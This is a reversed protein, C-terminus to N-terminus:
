LTIITVKKTLYEQRRVKNSLYEQWMGPRLWTAGADTLRCMVCPSSPSLSSALAEISAMFSLPQFVVNKPSSVAAMWDDLWRILDDSNM